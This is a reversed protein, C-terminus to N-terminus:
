ISLISLTASSGYKIFFGLLLVVGACKSIVLVQVGTEMTNVDCVDHLSFRQQLAGSTIRLYIYYAFDRFTKWSHMVYM